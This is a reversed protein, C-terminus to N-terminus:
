KWFWSCGLVFFFFIDLLDVNDSCISCRWFEIMQNQNKFIRCRRRRLLSSTPPQSAAIFMCHNVEFHLVRTFYESSSSSSVFLCVFLLDIVHKFDVFSVRILYFSHTNKRTRHNPSQSVRYCIYISVPSSTCGSSDSSLGTLSFCRERWLCYSM